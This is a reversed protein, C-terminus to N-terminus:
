WFALIIICSITAMIVQLIVDDHVFYGIVATMMFGVSNAIIDYLFFWFVNMGM